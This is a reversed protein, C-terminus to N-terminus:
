QLPEEGNLRKLVNQLQKLNEMALKQWKDSNIFWGLAGLWGCIVNIRSPQIAGFIGGILIMVIMFWYALSSKTKQTMVVERHQLRM